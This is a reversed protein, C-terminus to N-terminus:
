QSSSDQKQRCLHQCLLDLTARALDVPLCYDYATICVSYAILLTWLLFETLTSGFHGVWRCCRLPKMLRSSMWTTGSNVSTPKDRSANFRASGSAARAMTTALPRRFIHLSVGSPLVEGLRELTQRLAKAAAQLSISRTESGPPLFLLESGSTPRQHHLEM